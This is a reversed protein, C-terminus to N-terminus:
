LSRRPNSVERRRVRPVAHCPDDSARRRGVSEGADSDHGPAVRVRTTVAVAESPRWGYARPQGAFRLAAQMMAPAWIDPTRRDVTAGVFDSATVGVVAMRAGNVILETGLVQTTRGFRRSWYRDSIVVVPHQGVARNDEPGLLRGIQARQRLTGFFNGAILQIDATEPASADGPMGVLVPETSSQAAVEGRGGLLASVREVVPFSFRLDVEHPEVIQAIHLDQPNEVSLPRLVIANIVSFISSSAGIGLALSAIAVIAFGRGRVLLRVGFRLDQLLDEIPRSNYMDRCAEKVSHVSGMHHQLRRRADSPTEGRELSTEYMQEAHFLLEEDLERTSPEGGCSLVSRWSSAISLM